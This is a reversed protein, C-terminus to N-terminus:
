PVYTYIRHLHHEVGICIRGGKGETSRGKPYLNDDWAKKWLRIGQTDKNAIRRIKM